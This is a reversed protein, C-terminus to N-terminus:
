WKYELVLNWLQCKLPLTVDSTAYTTITGQERVVINYQPANQLEKKMDRFAEKLQLQKNENLWDERGTERLRDKLVKQLEIETMEPSGIDTACVFSIKPLLFRARGRGEKREERKEEKRKQTHLGPYQCQYEGARLSLAKHAEDKLFEVTRVVNEDKM